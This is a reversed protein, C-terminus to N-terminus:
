HRGTPWWVSDPLAGGGFPVAEGIRPIAVPMGAVRAKESVSQAPEYWSHLALAFAGWHIPIMLKAGLERAAQVAEEARMHIAPWHADYQGCEVLALDFPGHRRGIERFHPGYGSDGSFYITRGGAKIVWSAWLTASNDRLARGSFHRAPMCFLSVDAFGTSDGWDLERIRNGDVGWLELHAGVGLPAYFRDTKGILKLISGRDLHDYHDHSLIIADLHPLAEPEIPLVPNFRATSLFPLPAPVQGFMPDFLIKRGAVELLCASHGFWTVRAINTDRLGLAASDPRVMPLPGPPFKDAVSTLYYRRLMPVIRDMRMSMDTPVENLFKGDAYHGTAKFAQVRGASQIAGFQPSFVMFGWVVVIFAALLAAASLTLLKLLRLLKM